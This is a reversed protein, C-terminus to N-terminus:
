LIVCSPCIPPFHHQLPPRPSFGSEGLHVLRKGPFANQGDVEIHCPFQLRQGPLQKRNILKSHSKWPCSCSKFLFWYWEKEEQSDLEQKLVKLLCTLLLSYLYDYSCFELAYIEKFIFLCWFLDFSFATSIKVTKRQKEIHNGNILDEEKEKNLNWPWTQLQGHFIEGRCSLLLFYSGLLPSCNGYGRATTPVMHDTRLSPM